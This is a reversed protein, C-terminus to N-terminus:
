TTEVLYSCGSAGMVVAGGRVGKHEEVGKAAVQRVSFIRVTPKRRVDRGARCQLFFHRHSVHKQQKECARSRVSNPSVRTQIRVSNDRLGSSRGDGNYQECNGGVVSISKVRQCCCCEVWGKVIYQMGVVYKRCSTASTTSPFPLLAFAYRLGWVRPVETPAVLLFFVRVFTNRVLFSVASPTLKSLTRQANVFSSPTRHPYTTAHFPPPSQRDDPSSHRATVLTFAGRSLPEKHM